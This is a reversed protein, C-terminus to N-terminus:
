DAGYSAVYVSTALNCAHQQCIANDCTGDYAPTVHMLSVEAYGARVEADPRRQAESVCAYANLQLQWRM